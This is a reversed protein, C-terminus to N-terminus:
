TRPLQARAPPLPPHSRATRRRGPRQSAVAAHAPTRCAPGCAATPPRVAASICPSRPQRRGATSRSMTFDTVDRRDGATLEDLGTAVDDRHREGVPGRQRGPLDLRRDQQEGAVVASSRVATPSRAAPTCCPRVVGSRAARAPRRRHPRQAPRRHETPARRVDPRLRRTPRRPRRPASRGRTRDASQWAALHTSAVPVACGSCRSRTPGARRARDHHQLDVAAKWMSAARPGRVHCTFPSEDDAAAHHMRHM